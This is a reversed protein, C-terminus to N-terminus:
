PRDGEARDDTTPAIAPSAPTDAPESAAEGERPGGLTAYPAPEAQSRAAVVPGAALPAAAAGGRRRFAVAAIAAGGLGVVVAGGGLARTRGSDDAADLLATVSAADAAAAETDGSAFAETAGDLSAQPDEGLLGLATFLDRPADVAQTAARLQGAVELQESALDQAAAFDEDAAEYAERLSAPPAVGIEAAIGALEDRTALVEEAADIQEAARSFQWRGLPDRVAWGPLWGDGEAVLAAYAERVQARTELDDEQDPTIVWRRFLEEAQTSGGREELLDLFRRWDNPITVTEPDGAGRYATEDGDAAVFVERMGEEGIEEVLEHIVTWSAEYGFLERADTEDDLIRGPHSWENLRVSGDSTPTLGGRPRLGGVSVEDLVRASYEDAFGENIWRGVFLNSNFWGHSAEHVITLEDLDESIEILDETPYFVGAYGELLPTHVEVVEIEGDVPWDLGIKDVLVPLGERLLGSVRELWEADEPWARIVLREGDELSLPERTLSDERDAVVVSYWETVNSIGTATLTTLGDAVSEAVPSGSTEVEFGAPVFIRVEGADGFAWAYFTAFASGVRIQSESRPAGGPLDYSVSFKVTEGYDLDSPLAVEVATFGEDPTPDVRLSRSGSRAQISAAEAHVVLIAVDFFYRTTLTGSPTQQVLNPKDNTATVDVIVRVLGAEPDLRYSSSTVLDLGDDDAARVPGTAPVLLLSALLTAAAAARLLRADAM